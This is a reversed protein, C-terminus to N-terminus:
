GRIRDFLGHELMDKMAEACSNLRGCVAGLEIRLKKDGKIFAHLQDFLDGLEIAIDELVFSSEGGGFEDDGVNMM